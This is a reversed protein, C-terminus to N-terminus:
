NKGIPLGNSLAQAVEKLIGEADADYSLEDFSAYEVGTTLNKLAVESYFDSSKQVLLSMRRMLELVNVKGKGLSQISEIDTEGSGTVAELLMAKLEQREFYNPVRLIIHGSFTPPVDLGSEEDKFGTVARPLYKATKIM